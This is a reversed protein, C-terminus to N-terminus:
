NYKKFGLEEAIKATVVPTVLVLNRGTHCTCATCFVSDEDWYEVALSVVNIGYDELYRRVEVLYNGQEPLADWPNNCQTEKYRMSKDDRPDDSECAQFGFLGILIFLMLVRKM